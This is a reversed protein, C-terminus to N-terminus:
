VEKGDKYGKGNYPVGNVTVGNNGFSITKGVELPIRHAFSWEDM